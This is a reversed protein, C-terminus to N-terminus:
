FLFRENSFMLTTDNQLFVSKNAYFDKPSSDMLTVCSLIEAVSNFSMMLFICFQLHKPKKLISSFSSRFM